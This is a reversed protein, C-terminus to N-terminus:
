KYLIGMLLVVPIIETACLYSFIVLKKRPSNSVFKFTFWFIFLLFSIPFIFLLSSGILSNNASFFIFDLTVIITAVIMVLTSINLFDFLQFEDWGRFRFLRSVISVLLWKMLIILCIGGSMQLWTLWYEGFQEPNFFFQIELISNLYILVFASMVSFFILLYFSSASFFATNIFEYSSKKISFAKAIIYNIRSPYTSYIYGITILLILCICATFERFYDRVSRSIAVEEKVIRLEEYIVLDCILGELSERSSLALYVTDLRNQQFLQAPNLYYCGDIVQDLRGDVWLFTEHEACFRIVGDPQGYLFFGAHKTKDLATIPQVRNGEESKIMVQTYDVLTITDASQAHGASALLFLSIILYSRM